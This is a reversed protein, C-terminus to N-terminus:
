DEEDQVDSDSEDREQELFTQDKVDDLLWETNDSQAFLAEPTNPKFTGGLGDELDEERDEANEPQEEEEEDDSDSVYPGPYGQVREEMEAAPAPYLIQISATPAQVVHM